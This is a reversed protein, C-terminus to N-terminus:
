YMGTTRGSRSFSGSSRIRYRVEDGVHDESDTDVDDLDKEDRPLVLVTRLFQPNREGVVFFGPAERPGGDKPQGAKIMARMEEWGAKRSGPAKDARTWEVGPYVHGEIRVPKAMDAGISRGNEVTYISSDAPGPKVRSTRSREKRFGWLLEREVIGEAVDVALMRLGENARGTWGYWEEIRFLDGRVTSCIRGDPFRLDSGDSQAYWGVSFPASSGWDFGRDIRWSLPVEFAPVNNCEDLWVDSFMGGAILKWSGHLWADAMAKNAASAAITQKYNPEAALLLLNEDIHGHIAVRAPEPDGNLDLSDTTVIPGWWKGHLRFRDKVWNHGVGYPNTTARVKRPADPPLTSSRCCAFMSKYCRDDSWNTLEEWGIFPYEHGHYNWYDDPTRMYSLFLVEGGEFEWRLPKARVFNATPFIQRFWRVTKATLDALQPYTQRFIIGRWSEGYGKGVHQAFDMILADTKGPGRTGHYLAEFLPCALFEVQSGPQPAWVVLKGNVYREPIPKALERTLAESLEREFEEDETEVSQEEPTQVPLVAM